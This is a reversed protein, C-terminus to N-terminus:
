DELDAETMRLITGCKDLIKASADKSERDLTEAGLLSELTSLIEKNKYLLGMYDTCNMLLQFLVLLVMYRLSDGPQLDLILRICIDIVVKLDNIFFFNATRSNSFLHELLDLCNAMHLGQARNLLGAVSIGIVSTEKETIIEVIRDRCEEQAHLACLAQLGATTIDASDDHEQYYLVARVLGELAGQELLAAGISKPLPSCHVAIMTLFDLHLAVAEDLHERAEPLLPAFLWGACGCSEDVLAQLLPVGDTKAMAALLRTLACRLAASEEYRLMRSIDQVLRYDNSRLLQALEEHEGEEQNLEETADDLLEEYEAPSVSEFGLLAQASYRGM